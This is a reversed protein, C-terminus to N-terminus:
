VHRLDEQVTVIYKHHDYSVVFGEDNTLYGAEKLNTIGRFDSRMVEENAELGDILKDAFESESM